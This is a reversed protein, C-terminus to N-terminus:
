SVWSLITAKMTYEHSWDYNTSRRRTPEFSHIYIYMERNLDDTLKVQHRKDYWYKLNNYQDQSLIVGQWEIEQVEDQGEYVLTKGDPATTSQYNINKSYPPSGGERPNVEFTYTEPTGTNTDELQWKQVM